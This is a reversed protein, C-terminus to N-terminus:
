SNGISLGYISFKIGFGLRVLSALVNSPLEGYHWGSKGSSFGIDAVKNECLDFQVRAEDSLHDFLSAAESIISALGSVRDSGVVEFNLRYIGDLEDSSLIAIKGGLGQALLTLGSTSQLEFDVNIFHPTSEQNM